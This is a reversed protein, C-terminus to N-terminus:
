IGAFVQRASRVGVAHQQVVHRAAQALVTERATGAHLVAAAVDVLARDVRTWRAGDAVVLRAREGALTRAAHDAVGVVATALLGPQGVDTSGVGGTRLAFLADFVLEDAAADADALSAVRAVGFTALAAIGVLAELRAVLRGTTDVGDALVQGTAVLALARRAEVAVGEREALLAVADLALALRGVLDDVALTDEGVARLSFPARLAGLADLDCATDAVAGAGLAVAGLGISGALVDVLARLSSLYASVAGIADILRSGVLADTGVSVAAIRVVSEARRRLLPACVVVLASGVLLANLRSFADTWWREVGIRVVSIKTFTRLMRESM